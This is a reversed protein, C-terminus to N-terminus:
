RSTLMEEAIKVLDEKGLNSDANNSIEYLLQNHDDRWGIRHYTVSNTERDRNDSQIYYVENGQINLKEAKAQDDQFITVKSDPFIRTATVTVVNKGKVYRALSFDAKNWNLKQIYVRQGDSSSEAQRKLEDTLKLYAADALHNTYLDAPYVYGYDFQYGQPLHTISKLVPAQTRTIEAQLSSFNSYEIWKYEFKVPNLKDANNILEDKLYYAVYDGPQLQEKIQNTYFGLRNTYNTVFDTPEKVVATNLVVEGKNNLFEIYQSAAYGTVSVGLVFMATLGPVVVRHRIRARADLGRKHAALKRVRTMVKDTVDFNRFEEENLLDMEKLNENQSTRQLKPM